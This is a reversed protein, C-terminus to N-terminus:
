AFVFKHLEEHQDTQEALWLDYQMQLNLWSKASRGLVKSLRIAMDPSIGSKGKLINNLTSHAVGLNKALARCSINHPKMYSESIFEGAHPPNHMNM